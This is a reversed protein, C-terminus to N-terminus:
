CFNIQGRSISISFVLFASFDMNNWITRSHLINNFLM